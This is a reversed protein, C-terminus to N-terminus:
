GSKAMLSSRDLGGSVQRHRRLASACRSALSLQQMGDARLDTPPKDQPPEAVMACLAQAPTAAQSPFKPAALVRGPRHVAFTRRQAARPPTATFPPPPPVHRHEQPICGARYHRMRM